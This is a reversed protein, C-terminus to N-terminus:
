RNGEEGGQECKALSREKGEMEREIGVVCRLSLWVSVPTILAFYSM